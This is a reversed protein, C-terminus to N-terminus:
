RLEEVAVSVCVSEAVLIIIFLGPSSWGDDCRGLYWGVFRGGNREGVKGVRVFWWDLVVVLWPSM